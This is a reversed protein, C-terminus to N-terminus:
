LETVHFLVVPASENLRVAFAVDPMVRVVMNGNDYPPRPRCDTVTSPVGRLTLTWVILPTFTANTLAGAPM